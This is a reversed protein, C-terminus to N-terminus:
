HHAVRVYINLSSAFPRRPGCATLVDSKVARPCYSRWRSRRSRQGREAAAPRGRRDEQQHRRDLHGCHATNDWYVYDGDSVFTSTDKALDFVGETVQIEMNDGPNQTNVAIGFLYGTGIVEVGGGSTVAYPAIVTLTKGQQVYNNM